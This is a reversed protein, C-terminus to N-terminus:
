RCDVALSGAAAGAAALTFQMKKCTGGPVIVVGTPAAAAAVSSGWATLGRGAIAVTNAVRFIVTTGDAGICDANLARTAAGGSNDAYAICETVNSLDFVATQIVAGAAVGLSEFHRAITPQQSYPASAAQADRAGILAHQGVSLGAIAGIALVTIAAAVLYKRM